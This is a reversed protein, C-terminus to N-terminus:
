YHSTLGLPHQDGIRILARKGYAAVCGLDVRSDAFVTCQMHHAIILACEVFIM